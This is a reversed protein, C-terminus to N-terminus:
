RGFFLMTVPLCCDGYCTNYQICIISFMAPNLVWIPAYPNVPTFCLCICTLPSLNSNFGNVLKTDAAQSFQLICKIKKLVFPGFCYTNSLYNNTQDKKKKWKLIVHKALLVYFYNLGNSNLNYAFMIVM